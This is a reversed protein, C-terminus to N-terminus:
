IGKERSEFWEHNEVRMYYVTLKILLMYWAFQTLSEERKVFDRDMAELILKRNFTTSQSFDAFYNDLGSNKFCMKGSFVNDKLDKIQKEEFPGKSIDYLPAIMIYDDRVLDCTNSLIMGKTMYTETSGDEKQITFPLESLIDGQSLDPLLKPMFWNKNDMNIQKIATRVANQIETDVSPFIQNCYEEFFRLM